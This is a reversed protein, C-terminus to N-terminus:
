SCQSPVYTRLFHQQNLLQIDLLSFAYSLPLLFVPKRKWSLLFGVHFDLEPLPSSGPTDTAEQVRRWTPLLLSLPFQGFLICHAQSSESIVSLLVVHRPREGLNLPSSTLFSFIPQSCNELPRWGVAHDSETAVLNQPWSLQFRPQM